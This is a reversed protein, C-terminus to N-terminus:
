LGPKGEALTRKFYDPYRAHQGSTTEYHNVTLSEVYGVRGGRSRFWRCIEVDDMGWVPGSEDYRFANYVWGPAALFIGGIQPVDLISQGDVEFRGTAAPPNNLGLVRPSLIAYGDDVLDAVDVLTFPITIECDNDIKVVVDYDHDLEGLLKNIGRSIGLNNKSLLVKHLRDAKFEKVLWERTGDTSGQDFVYHHYHCGANTHLADFCHQTYALRDRTLTLVAVNM